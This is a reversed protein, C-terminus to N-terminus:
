PIQVPIQLPTWRSWWFFNFFTKEFFNESSKLGLKPLHRLVVLVTKKLSKMEVKLDGGRDWCLKPAGKFAPKSQGRPLGNFKTCKFWILEVMASV